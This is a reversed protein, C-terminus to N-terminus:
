GKSETLLIFSNNTKKGQKLYNKEAKRLRTPTYTYYGPYM